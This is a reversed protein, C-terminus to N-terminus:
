SQSRLYGMVIGGGMAMIGGAIWAAAPYIQWIGVLVLVCGLLILSDDLYKKM